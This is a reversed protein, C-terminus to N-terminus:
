IEGSREMVTRAVLTSPVDSYQALREICRAFNREGADDFTTQEKRAEAVLEVAEEFFRAKNQPLSKNAM